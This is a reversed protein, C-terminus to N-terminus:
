HISIPLGDKSNDLVLSVPRNTKQEDSIATISNVPQGPQQSLERLGYKTAPGAKISSVSEHDNSDDGVVQSNVERRAKALYVFLAITTIVRVLVSSSCWSGAKLQRTAGAIQQAQPSIEFPPNAHVLMGLCYSM